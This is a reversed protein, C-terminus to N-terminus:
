YFHRDGTMFDEKEGREKEKSEEGDARKVRDSAGHSRKVM